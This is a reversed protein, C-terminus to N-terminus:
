EERYTITVGGSTSIQSGFRTSVVEDVAGVPQSGEPFVISDTPYGPKDAASRSVLHTQFLGSAPNTWLTAGTGFFVELSTQVTGTNFCSISGVRIKRGTAPTVLTRTVISNNSNQAYTKVESGIHDRAPPELRITQNNIQAQVLYCGDMTGSGTHYGYDFSIKYITFRKFVSDARFQALTYASGKTPCTDPTAAVTGYWFYAYGTPVDTPWNLERWGAASTTLPTHSLEIREDFNAPDHMYVCVGMDIGSTATYYAHLRVSTLEAFPMEDVPVLVKAFDDWSTQVGGNLLAARIIQSTDKARTTTWLASGNGGYDLEPQGFIPALIRRTPVSM